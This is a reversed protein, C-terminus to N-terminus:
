KNFGIGNNIRAVFHREADACTLHTAPVGSFNHPDFGRLRTYPDATGHQSGVSEEREAVTNVGGGGDANGTDNLRAAGNTIIFHDSGGVLVTNGHQKGIHTVEAM